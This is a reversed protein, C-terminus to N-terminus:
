KCIESIHVYSLYLDSWDEIELICKQPPFLRRGQVSLSCIPQYKVHSNGFELANCYSWLMAVLHDSYKFFPFKM